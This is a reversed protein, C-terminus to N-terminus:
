LWPILRKLRDVTERNQQTIAFSQAVPPFSEPPDFFTTPLPPSSLPQWTDLWSQPLPTNVDLSQDSMEAWLLTWARPVVRWIEYGGGGTALWRGHAYTHAWQHVLAPVKAYFDTTAFLDTLPDWYHGDCGHQSIIIDPQFHQLAAPVIRELCELWSQNDTYPRLPVNLAYGQGAGTGTEEVSGTGPFLYQGTEHFSITLVHPDDYFAQQVGDGHHADTDIYAIRWQTKERLWHIAVTLDNYICFGSAQAAKAHHLGGALNLAHMAEGQAIVQAAALTGGVALRAADHMGPFVPDDETGLGYAAARKLLTPNSVDELNTFHQVMDIYSRHHARVLDDITAPAPLVLQDDSVLHLADILSKTARLRVPNFPHTAGFDYQSYADSYIFKATDTM